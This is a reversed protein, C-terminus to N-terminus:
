LQLHEPTWEGAKVMRKDFNDMWGILLSMSKLIEKDAKNQQKLKEKSVLKKTNNM